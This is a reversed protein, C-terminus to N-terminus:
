IKWFSKQQAEDKEKRLRKPFPVPPPQVENSPQVVPKSTIQSQDNTLDENSGAPKELKVVVPEKPPVSTNNDRVDLSTAKGGRTTVGKVDCDIILVNNIVNLLEQVGIRLEILSNNREKFLFENNTQFDYIFARIEEHERKGKDIFKNLMEEMTLSREPYNFHYPHLRSET